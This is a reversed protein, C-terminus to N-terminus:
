DPAPGPSAPTIDPEVETPAIPGRFDAILGCGHECRRGHPYDACMLPRAEYERCRRTARDYHRCTFYQVGDLVEIPVLMDRLYRAEEHGDRGARPEAQFDGSEVMAVFRPWDHAPGVVFRECCRGTCTVATM